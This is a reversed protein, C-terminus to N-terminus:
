KYLAKRYQRPSFQFYGFNHFNYLFCINLFHTSIFFVSCGIHRTLQLYLNSGTITVIISFLFLSSVDLEVM